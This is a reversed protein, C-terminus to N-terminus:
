GCRRSGFHFLVLFAALATGLLVAASPEPTPNGLVDFAGNPNYVSPYWISGEYSLAGNGSAGINNQMWLAFTDGPFAAVLWYQDGGQLFIGPSTVTDVACCAPFAPPMTNITWSGLVTGSPQGANDTELDLTFSNTGSIWGMALDIQTLDYSKSPTFAMIQSLDGINPGLEAWGTSGYLNSPDSNFNSYITVSSAKSTLPLAAVSLLLVAVWLLTRALQSRKDAM